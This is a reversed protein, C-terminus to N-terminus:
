LFFRGHPLHAKGKFVQSPPLAGCLGANDPDSVSGLFQPQRRANLEQELDYAFGILEPERLFTSYMQMGAPKGASTIGVPLAINPYGSVAPATSNTLHPAVIADLNGAALANDIGSRAALVAGARAAVYDPDTLVGSTSESIEFLEQGYYVLEAPCHAINFAILDALTRMDTHGLGALYEAIHVKFEFLLATFEDGFYGFIDGTDTDVLTAGLSAMADLAQQFFPLTDDDGPFGYTAYDDFFRRDIGIRAGNLAGRQLFQTYENPLPQGAVPGFPSQLVGLLVAVDTVTRGMPGATDQDHSIPIIGDQSILGLTPKLGVVLNANSPGVISGDTETGVAAACLNATPAVSSGSSSGWTTYSLLYPNRTAGARASWGYFGFPNFGRFNAWEGLNAKGLIIAGATRLREAVVADAPVKSNVLALSGATTQMQDDTGINDKILIPIGHLPGRLGRRQRRDNDLRAAIAEATPNIEIVARLLPNLAAIRHIYGRTLELSTLAGSAMLAQLEPITKEIWLADTGAVAKAPILSGLGGALLAAGSAVGAGLFTRRSIGNEPLQPDVFRQFAM